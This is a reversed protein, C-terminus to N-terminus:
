FKPDLTRSADANQTHKLEGSGQEGQITENNTQERNYYVITHSNDLM